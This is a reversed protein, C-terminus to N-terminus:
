GELKADRRPKFKDCAAYHAHIALRRIAASAQEVLNLLEDDAPVCEHHMWNEVKRLYHAM